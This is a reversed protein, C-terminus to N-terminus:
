VSQWLEDIKEKTMWKPLASITIGCLNGTEEMYEDLGKMQRILEKMQEEDYSSADVSEFLM